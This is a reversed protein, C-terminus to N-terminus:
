WHLLYIGFYTNIQSLKHLTRLKYDPNERERYVKPHNYKNFIAEIPVVDKFMM